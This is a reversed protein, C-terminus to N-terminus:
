KCTDIAHVIKPGQFTRADGIRTVKGVSYDYGTNFDLTDKLIWKLHKKKKVGKVWSHSQFEKWM